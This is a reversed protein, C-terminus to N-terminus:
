RGLVATIEARQSPRWLYWEGGAARIRNRWVREPRTLQGTESKLEAYVFRDRVLTLDVWGAGDAQVPTRWGHETRAARFHVVAWGHRHAEDIVWTQWTDEREMRHIIELATLTKRTPQARRTPPVVRPGSM